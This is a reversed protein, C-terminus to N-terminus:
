PEVAMTVGRWNKSCVKGTFHAPTQPSSGARLALPLGVSEGGRVRVRDDRLGRTMGPLIARSVLGNVAPEELFRIQVVSASLRLASGGPGKEASPASVASLPFVDANM